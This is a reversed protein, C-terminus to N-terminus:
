VAGCLSAAGERHAALPEVACHTVIDGMHGDCGELGWSGEAGAWSVWKGKKTSFLTSLFYM